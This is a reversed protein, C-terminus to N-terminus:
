ARRCHGCPPKTTELKPHKERCSVFHPDSTDVSALVVSLKVTNYAVDNIIVSSDVRVIVIKNYAVDNIILCSDVWTPNWWQLNSGRHTPYLYEKYSTHVPYFIEKPKFLYLFGEMKIFILRSSTPCM